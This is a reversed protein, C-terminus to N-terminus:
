NKNKIFTYKQKHANKADNEDLKHNCCAGCNTCYYSKQM